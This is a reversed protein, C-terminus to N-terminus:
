QEVSTGGLIDGQEANQEIQVPVVDLIRNQQADFLIARDTTVILYDGNKAKNYFANRERLQNVDVITAVTPEVGEPISYLKRVQDVIRKAAEQNEGQNGGNLQDLRVSLQALQAEANRRRMDIVVLLVVLGIVALAALPRTRSAASKSSSDFSSAPTDM